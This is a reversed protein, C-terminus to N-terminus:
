PSFPTNIWQRFEYAGRSIRWWNPLLMIPTFHHPISSFCTICNSWSAMLKLNHKNPSIVPKNIKTSHYHHLPLPPTTSITASIAHGLMSCERSDWLMYLVRHRFKSRFSHGDVPPAVQLHYKSVPEDGIYSLVPTCRSRSFLCRVWTTQDRRKSLHRASVAGGAGYQPVKGKERERKTERSEISRKTEISKFEKENRRGSGHIEADFDPTCYKAGLALMSDM